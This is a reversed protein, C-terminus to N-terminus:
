PSQPQVPESPQKLPKLELWQQAAFGLIFRLWLTLFRILITAVTAAALNGTFAAYLTTMVVDPIGVQFPGIPIASVVLVIGATIAVASWSVSIGLSLFVLYQTALSFVWTLVMLIFSAILAKPHKKYHKISEHYNQAIEHANNKLNGLQLRDKGLKSTIKLLGNILKTSIKENTLLAIMGILAAAIVVTVILIYNFYQDKIVSNESALLAAGIVLVLVNMAMGIFRHVILSAVAPGSKTKGQEKTILYVRTLDSSASGAPILTDIFNGYFVYLNARLVSLKVSLSNLLEKWSQTFFVMELLSTAAAALYIYPNTNQLSEVIKTLDGNVLYIYLLFAAIGILPGAITKWNLKTRKAEM